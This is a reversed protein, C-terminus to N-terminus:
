WIRDSISLKNLLINYYKIYEKDYGTYIRAKRICRMVSRQTLGTMEALQRYFISYRDHLLYLCLNRAMARKFPINGKGSYLEEPTIGFLECIVQEVNNGVSNKKM